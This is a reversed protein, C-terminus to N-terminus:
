ASAEVPRGGAKSPRGRRRGPRCPMSGNRRASDGKASSPRERAGRKLTGLLAAARNQPITLTSVPYNRFRGALTQEEPHVAFAVGRRVYWIECPRGDPAIAKFKSRQRRGDVFGTWKRSPDRPLGALTRAAASISEPTPRPVSQTKAVPAKADSNKMIQDTQGSLHFDDAEVRGEPQVSSGDIESLAPAVSPSDARARPQRPRVRIPFDQAAIVAGHRYVLRLYCLEALATLLFCRELRVNGRNRYVRNNGKVIQKALANIVSWQSVPRGAAKVADFLQRALPHKAGRLPAADATPGYQQRALYNETPEVFAM